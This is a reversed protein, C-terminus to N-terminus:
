HLNHCFFLWAYWIPCPNSPPFSQCIQRIAVLDKLKKLKKMLNLTTHFPHIDTKFLFGKFEVSVFPAGNDSMTVYDVYQFHKM